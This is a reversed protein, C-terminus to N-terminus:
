EDKKKPCLVLLGRMTGRKFVKTRYYGQKIHNYITQQTKGLRQALESVSVWEDMNNNSEM